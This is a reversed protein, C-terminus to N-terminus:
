AANTAAGPELRAATARVSQLQPLLLRARLFAIGLFGIGILAFPGPEPVAGTIGVDPGGLGAAEAATLAGDYIRLETVLGSAAERQQSGNIDDEFFRILNNSATPVAEQSGDTFSFQFAGNFYGTVTNTSSDRTLVVRAPVNALFVSNSGQIDSNIFFDDHGLHEYLGRDATRDKFDIIKRYDGGSGGVLDVFSFDLLISYNASNSFASSVHLGQNPAFSYGAASQTGGDSVLAPGGFIDSLSGSLQYEHALTAGSVPLVLGSILTLIALYRLQVGGKTAELLLRQLATHGLINSM